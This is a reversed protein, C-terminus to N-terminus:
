ATMVTIRFNRIVADVQGAQTIFYEKVVATDKIKGEAVQRVTLYDKVTARLSFLNTSIM